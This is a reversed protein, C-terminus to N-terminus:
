KNGSLLQLLANAPGSRTRAKHFVVGLERQMKTTKIDIVKLSDDIMSDPIVGWGLGTEVMAKITELYNTEILININDDLQLAHNILARTYTGYSPLISPKQLLQKRTVKGAALSHNAAVVCHMPDNWVKKLSLRKDPQSPLTVIGLEIDGHLVQQCAQESDMFQLELDVDPYQKSFKGLIAPLRHLGIHHSTAFRLHGSTTEHLNSIIRESEELEDLIRQYGPILAQGAETLQVSKGIRDFLSIDLFREMTQIRKSVAPQTLHLAEAARSFSATESVALFARINQIDM